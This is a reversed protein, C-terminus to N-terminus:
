RPRFPNGAVEEVPVVGEWPWKAANSRGPRNTVSSRLQKPARRYSIGPRRAASHNRSCPWTSMGGFTCALYRPAPRGNGPRRTDGPSVDDLLFSCPRVRGPTGCGVFCGAERGAPRLLRGHAVPSRVSSRPPQGPVRPIVGAGTPATIPVWLLCSNVCHEGGSPSGAPRGTRPVLTGPPPDASVERLTSGDPSSHRM